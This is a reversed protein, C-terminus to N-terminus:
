GNSNGAFYQKTAEVDLAIQAQLADLSEFKAEERLKHMFYVTVHAGYIDQDFDLLYVELTPRLGDRLTPRVGISAAGPLHRKDLGAVMAAYVGTLPVRKRKLQVNATPFGLTRGIKDGHCVRGAIGYPRGLLHAALELQGAALADRVASSSVRLGDHDVTNMAEVGFGADRGAARLMEFNGARGRGFRFDDGIIVHRAQLGEVVIRRIFDEATLAALQRDFHCLYVHDVGFGELLVLKERLSTLRAPAQDPTFVERPHPEFTMVTSPLGLERAKATLRELMAVHGRHIGDFNGITLVTPPLQQGSLGLFVRM